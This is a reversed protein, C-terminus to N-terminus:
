MWTCDLAAASVYSRATSGLPRYLGEGTSAPSTAGADVDAGPEVFRQGRQTPRVTNPRNSITPAACRLRIRVASHPLNQHQHPHRRDEPGGGGQHAEAERVGAPAGADAGDVDGDVVRVEGDGMQREGGAGGHPEHDAVGIGDVVLEDESRAADLLEHLVRLLSQVVARHGPLDRNGRPGRARRREREARGAVVQQETTVQRAVVGVPHAAADGNRLFETTAVSTSIRNRQRSRVARRPSSVASSTRFRHARPASCPTAASTTNGSCTETALRASSPVYTLTAVTPPPNGSAEAGSSSRSASARRAMAASGSSSSTTNSRRSTRSSRRSRARSSTAMSRSIAPARGRLTMRSVASSPEGSRTPAAARAAHAPPASKTFDEVPLAPGAVGSATRAMTAATRANWSRVPSRTPILTAPPTRVRAWASSYASRTRRSSPSSQSVGPSNRIPAEPRRSSRTPLQAPGSAPEFRELSVEARCGGQRRPACHCFM